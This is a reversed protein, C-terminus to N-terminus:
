VRHAALLDAAQRLHDLSGDFREPETLVSVIAAGGRAYAELRRLPDSTRASLDGVSPSLLKLEAILDFGGTETRLRPPPPMGSVLSRLASEPSRARAARVRATSSRQMDSLLGM